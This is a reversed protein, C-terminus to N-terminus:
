KQSYAKSLYQNNSDLNGKLEEVQCNSQLTGIMLGKRNTM